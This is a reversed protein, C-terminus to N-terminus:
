LDLSAGTSLDTRLLPLHRALLALARDDCSHGLLTTAGSAAVIAVNEKLTPHTPLRIWTASGENVMREGLSGTPLHGTFLTPHGASRALALILWAPGAMGMGDHCLLTARPLPGGESWDAAARLRTALADAMGSVLWDTGRVQVELADRMGPALAVPGPVIALLEASRGYLPTPLVCGGPHAEIWERVQSAREDGRIPDDGYSADIAMANCAAIPDMTFVASSPIVDGCYNFRTRGDDVRCWVGGAVHGSRGTTIILPGLRIADEGLPLREVTAARVLAHHSTEAYGALSSDADLLTETTMFIRGSFGRAICWGLAAVHDEHGHTLLIADTARLQAESIRPYYDDSGRASTKVGADLLLRYGDSEVGLSTRGKEGFGGHLVLRM